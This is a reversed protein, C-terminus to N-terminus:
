ISFKNMTAVSSIETYTLKDGLENLKQVVGSAGENSCSVEKLLFETETSM